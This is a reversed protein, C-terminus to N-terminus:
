ISFALVIDCPLKEGSKLKVETVEGGAVIFEDTIAEMRFQIGKDEHLKQMVKGVEDGLM